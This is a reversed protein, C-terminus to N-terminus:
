SFASDHGSAGSSAGRASLGGVSSGPSAVFAGRHGSVSQWVAFALVAVRTITGFLRVVGSGGGVTDVRTTLSADQRSAVFLDIDSGVSPLDATLGELLTATVCIEGSLEPLLDADMTVWKRRPSRSIWYFRRPTWMLLGRILLHYRVTLGRVNDVSDLCVTRMQM